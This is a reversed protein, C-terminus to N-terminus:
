NDRNSKNMLSRFYSVKDDFFPYKDNWTEYDIAITNWNGAVKLFDLKAELITEYQVEKENLCNVRDNSNLYLIAMNLSPVALDILINTEPCLLNSEFTLNFNHLIM